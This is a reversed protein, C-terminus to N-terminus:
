LSDHIIPTERKPVPTKKEGGTQHHASTSTYTQNFMTSSPGLLVRLRVGEGM